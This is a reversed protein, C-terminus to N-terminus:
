YYVRIKTVNVVSTIHTFQGYVFPRETPRMNITRDSESSAMRCVISANNGHDAVHLSTAIRGEETILDLPLTFPAVFERFDSPNYFEHPM